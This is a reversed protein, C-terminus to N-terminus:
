IQLMLGERGGGGGFFFGWGGPLIKPNQLSIFEECIDSRIHRADNEHELCLGTTTNKPGMAPPSLALLSAMTRELIAFFSSLPIKQVHTSTVEYSSM